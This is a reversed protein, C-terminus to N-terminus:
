KSKGLAKALAEYLRDNYTSMIRDQERAVTRQVVYGGKGFQGFSSTGSAYQNGIWRRYPFTAGRRSYRLKGVANRDIKRMNGGKGVPVLISDRGFEMSLATPQRDSSRGIKIKAQTRTAQPKINNASRIAKPVPQKKALSRSKDSVEKAIERNFARLAKLVDTKGYRKLESVIEKIESNDIALDNIKLTM